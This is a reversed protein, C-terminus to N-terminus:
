SNTQKVRRLGIPREEAVTVRGGNYVAHHDKFDQIAKCINLHFSGKGQVSHLPVNEYHSILVNSIISHSNCM